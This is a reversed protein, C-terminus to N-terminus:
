SKRRSFRQAVVLLGIGILTWMAPEPVPVFAAQEDSIPLMEPRESDISLVSGSPEPAAVQLKFSAGPQEARVAALATFALLLVSLFIKRKNVM